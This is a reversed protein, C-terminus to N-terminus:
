AEERAASADLAGAAVLARAAGVLFLSGAVVTEDASAYVAPLADEIRGGARVVPHLARIAGALEDPERALPHSGRTVVIEDVHEVLPAVVSRPERRRGMGLVLVRREPRERKALWRALMASGDPNHAGDLILGPRLEELRGAIFATALGEEIAADEIVFGQERLRHIVGVAVMANAAQHEGALGLRVPGVVGHPSALRVRGDRLAERRLAPPAWWPCDLQEARAVLVDRAERVVPGLVVPVRRKFIGAKEMAIEGLTDGLVEQHDLGIHPVACVVPQVLNTGDLRGGLGVEVVQVDVEAQAFGLFAAAVALEYYTLVGQELGVDEAWSRRTRDVQELLGVLTPDDVPRGDIQIRENVHEVHPSLTTGVRYGALQLIRSVFTCVSGKGNTGAVHVTPAALHPEGLVGLFTRM